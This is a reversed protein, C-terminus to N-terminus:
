EIAGDSAHVTAGGVIRNSERAGERGIMGEAAFQFAGVKAGRVRIKEEMVSSASGGTGTGIDNDADVNTDTAGTVCGNGCNTQLKGGMDRM